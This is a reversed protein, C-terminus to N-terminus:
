YSISRNWEVRLEMGECDNKRGGTQPKPKKLNRRLNHNVKVGIILTVVPYTRGGYNKPPSVKRRRYTFYFPIYTQAPKNSGPSPKHESREM